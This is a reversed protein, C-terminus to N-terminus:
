TALLRVHKLIRRAFASASTGDDWRVIHVDDRHVYMWHSLLRIEDVDRVSLTAPRDAGPDFDDEVRETLVVRQAEGLDDAGGEAGAELTVSAVFQGFRVLMVDVTGDDHPHLLAANHQRIPAAVASQTELLREVQDHWDRFEAAKEFDLQESAQEMRATLRDLISRDRGTLFARVNEVVDAYAPKAKEDEIVCPAVPCREMDAYLCAEGKRFRQDDCERLHFFKGILEVMGEAQDTNRLPGYYEAGDDQITKTWEIRPYDEEVNLRLFPRSYYRRQARNYYPKNEKILRSELLLAELETQTTEWDVSRVKNMM